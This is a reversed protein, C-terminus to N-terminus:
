VRSLYKRKFFYEVEKDANQNIFYLEMGKMAAFKAIYNAFATQMSTGIVLM